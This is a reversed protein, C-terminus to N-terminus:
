LRGVGVKPWEDVFANVSSVWDMIKPKGEPWAFTGNATRLFFGLNAIFYRFKASCILLESKGTCVARRKTCALCKHGRGMDPVCDCGKSVCWACPDGYRTFPVGAFSSELLEGEESAAGAGAGEPPAVVGGGAEAAEATTAAGGEGGEGEEGAGEAVVPAAAAAAGEGGAAGGSGGVGVLAPDLVLGGVEPQQQDQQQQQQQDEQQNQMTEQESNAVQALADM